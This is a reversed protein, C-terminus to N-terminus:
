RRRTCTSKQDTTSVKADIWVQARHRDDARLKVDDRFKVCARATSYNQKLASTEAFPIYGITKPREQGHAVPLTYKYDVTMASSRAHTRSLTIQRRRLHKQWFYPM